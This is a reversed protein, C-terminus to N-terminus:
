IHEFSEKYFSRINMIRNLTTVYETIASKIIRKCGTTLKISAKGRGEKYDERMWVARTALQDKLTNVNKMIEEFSPLYGNLEIQKRIEEVQEKILTQSMEEFLRLYQNGYARSAFYESINNFM